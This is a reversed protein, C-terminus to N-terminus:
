AARDCQEALRLLEMARNRVTRGAQMNCEDEFTKSVIASESADM